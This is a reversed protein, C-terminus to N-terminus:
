KAAAMAAAMENNVFTPCSIGPELTRTIDYALNTFGMDQMAQNPMISFSGGTCTPFTFTGTGWATATVDAPDLDDGWQGGTPM